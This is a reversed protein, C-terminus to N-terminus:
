VLKMTWTVFGETFDTSMNVDQGWSAVYTWDPDELWALTDFSTARQRIYRVYLDVRDKIWMDSGRIRLRIKLHGPLGSSFEVKAVVRVVGSPGVFGAGARKAALEEDPPARNM